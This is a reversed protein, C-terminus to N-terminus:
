PAKIGCVGDGLLGAIRGKRESALGDLDCPCDRGRVWLLGPRSGPSQPFSLWGPREEAIRDVGGM